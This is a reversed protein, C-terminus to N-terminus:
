GIQKFCCYLPLSTYLLCAGAKGGGTAGLGAFNYPSIKVDGGFHLWGTEKMAQCFAVEVRIGELKAEECYIDCFQKLTKIGSISNNYYSPYVAHKQYYKVLQSSNINSIGEIPYGAIWVGSSNFYYNKNDITQLGTLMKYTNDLYYWSNGLKLWGKVATGSTSFYYWINNIKQWGTCMAGSSNLYYKKNDISIPILSLHTIIRCSISVDGSFAKLSAFSSASSPM